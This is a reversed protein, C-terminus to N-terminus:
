LSRKGLFSVLNDLSANTGMTHGKVMDQGIFSALQTTTKLKTERGNPTLELTAETIIEIAISTM